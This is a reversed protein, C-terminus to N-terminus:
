MKASDLVQVLLLMLILPAKNRSFLTSTEQQDRALLLKVKSDKNSHWVALVIASCMLCIRISKKRELLMHTSAHHHGPSEM